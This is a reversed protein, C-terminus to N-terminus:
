INSKITVYKSFFYQLKKKCFNYITVDATTIEQRIRDRNPKVVLRSTSGGGGGGVGGGHRALEAPMSIVSDSLKM